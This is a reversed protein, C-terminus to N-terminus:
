QEVSLVSGERIVDLDINGMSHVPTGLLNHYFAVLHTQIDVPDELLDGQDTKLVSIHRAYRKKRM